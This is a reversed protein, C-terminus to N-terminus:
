WVETNKAKYMEKVYQIVEDDETATALRATLKTDWDIIASLPDEGTGLLGEILNKGLLCHYQGADQYVLPRLAEASKPLAGDNFDITVKRTEEVNMQEM